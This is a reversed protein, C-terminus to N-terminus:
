IGPVPRRSSIGRAGCLGAAEMAYGIWQVLGAQRLAHAGRRVCNIFLQQQAVNHGKDRRHPFLQDAEISWQSPIRRRTWAPLM